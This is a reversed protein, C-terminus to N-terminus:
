PSGAREPWELADVAEELRALAPGLERALSGARVLDSDTACVELARALQGLGQAGVSSASGKLSHAQRGLTETDGAELASLIKQINLPATEFFLGLLERLLQADGDMLELAEALALTEGPQCAQATTGRSTCLPAEKGPM